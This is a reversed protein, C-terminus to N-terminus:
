GERGQARPERLDLDLAQRRPPSETGTRLPKGQWTNENLGNCKESWQGQDEQDLKQLFSVGGVALLGAETLLGEVQELAPLYHPAAVPAKHSRCSVTYGRFYTRKGLKHGTLVRNTCAGSSAERHGPVM